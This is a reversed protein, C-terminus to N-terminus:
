CIGNFSIKHLNGSFISVQVNYNTQVATTASSVPLQYNNAAQEFPRLTPAAAPVEPEYLPEFPRPTPAAAPSVYVGNYLQGLAINEVQKPEQQQQLQQFPPETVLFVTAPTTAAPTVATEYPSPIHSSATTGAFSQQEVQKFIKTKLKSYLL